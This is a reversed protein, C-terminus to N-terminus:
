PQTYEPREVIILAETTISNKRHLHFRQYADLPFINSIRWGVHQATEALLRPTNIIIEEGSLTTKNPGVVLAFKGGPRICALTAKFVSSMDLFYRFILAPMNQRRFGNGNGNALRLIKRCLRLVDKPLLDKTERLLKEDSERERRTIERNGILSRETQSLAEQDLLGLFALSLRQTDIYPLATAYPPSTIMFDFPREARLKYYPFDNRCDALIAQQSGRIRGLIRRARIITQTRQDLRSIFDPIAAYNDKPSKRRRIRLDGPDQYSVERLGDSLVVRLINQLNLKEINRIQGEIFALQALVSISFWKELYQRNPIELFKHSQLLKLESSRFPRQFDLRSATKKLKKILRNVESQLERIPIRMANLKANSIFVALPNLDMGIADWGTHACELLCTGSGCFPDLILARDHIQLLNGIARVIQPNFKGKYEHLGHASYRTSQQKPILKQFKSFHNRNFFETTRFSAELQAQLPIRKSTGNVRVEKFYTLRDIVHEKLLNSELQIGTKTPKPKVGLLQEVELLALRKEYPFYCYGYWDMEIM